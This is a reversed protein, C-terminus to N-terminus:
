LAKQCRQCLQKTADFLDLKEWQWCRACKDGIAKLTAVFLGPAVEQMDSKQNELAVQSVIFYEKLFQEISQKQDHIMAFLKEIKDQDKYGPSIYLRVGADLSHKIVGQGRLEELSKLVASRVERMADWLDKFEIASCAYIFNGHIGVMRKDVVSTYVDSYDSFLRNIAWDLNEFDQLHISRKKDRQYSDSILEATVSLIPAMLKTLTDVIYYCVTQASRRELGNSKEVYLRDKVIDLYFASLDKVCYDALDHFVATSKREKYSQQISKNLDYLQLLAYQDILLMNDIHVADKAIDFDYLNSLLFRCTNRIKRHVEAVNNMLNTSVVPDSDYDNSAVWLRLGDLGINKIIEAPSVVNGISKSMKRGKEDVTFGHTLIERMAPNEHLALSTLLSSQFWGRHQDKGELYMDAPYSIDVGESLMAFHSVGSDFWVDLIDAEKRLNKSGCKTCAGSSILDTIAVNDWYEIGDKEVGQAVKDVIETTLLVDNCDDCSIAPIPVGWARQRSLCWELRGSVTASLRGRGSEPIMRMASIAQLARDRLNHQSLDCFWQKTARFILGNHCRWCHPYSHRISEKFLLNGTEDLKKLVAWQGDTILMGALDKPEIENTYRGDITIPSYIELGNKVGIEYDDPGCGPANHVCATGDELSVFSDGIVPVQLGEIFPHNVKKGILLEADFEVVVTAIEKMVAAVKAVLDKGIIVLQDKIEVVQYKAGPKLVVARNLPLTWPTTTWALLSVKRNSITDFIEQNLIKVFAADAPAQFASTSFQVYVSPDKREHYEIEANALVTQCHMCWPVTKQKRAIYGKGVMIGFARLTQAEYIPDMTTCSEDWEMMIGLSRFEEKQVEVWKAAYERCAKKLAIADNKIDPNEAAVKFEIPLGHCDWLPVFPVHKGSMRESKTVIDKLIKNYAHGLHINGNAYPPGDYLMFSQKGKNHLYTLAYLKENEWRELVQKDFIHAQARIPFDTTPLNLTDKYSLASQEKEEHKSM